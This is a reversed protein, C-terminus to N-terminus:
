RREEARHSHAREYQKLIDGFSQDPEPNPQSDPVPKRNSDLWSPNPM